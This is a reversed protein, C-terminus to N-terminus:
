AAPPLGNESAVGVKDAPVQPGRLVEISGFYVRSPDNPLKTISFAYRHRARLGVVTPTALSFPKGGAAYFTVQAGPPASVKAFVPLPLRERMERNYLRSWDNEVPRRPQLHPMQQIALPPLSRRAIKENAVRPLANESEAHVAPAPPSPPAAAPASTPTPPQAVAFAAAMAIGGLALVKASSREVAKTM